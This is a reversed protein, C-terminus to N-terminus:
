REPDRDHLTQEFSITTLFAEPRLNSTSTSAQIVSRNCGYFNPKTQNYRHQISVWVQPAKASWDKSASKPPALAFNADDCSTDEAWSSVM